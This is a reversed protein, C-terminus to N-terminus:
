KRRIVKNLFRNFGNFPKYIKKMQQMQIASDINKIADSNSYFTKQYINNNYIHFAPLQEIFYRDESYKNSNFDRMIIIINTDSYHDIIEKIQEYYKSEDSSDEVIYKLTISYDM